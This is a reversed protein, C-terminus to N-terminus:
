PGAAVQLADDGRGVPDHDVALVVRDAAVGAPETPVTAAVEVDLPEVAAPGRGLVEPVLAGHRRSTSSAFRREAFLLLAHHDPRPVDAAVALRMLTELRSSAFPRPSHSSPFGADSVSRHRVIWSSCRDCGTGLGPYPPAPPPPSTQMPAGGPAACAQGGEVDPPHYLSRPAGRGVGRRGRRRGSWVVAAGQTPAPRDEGSGTNGALGTKKGTRLVGSFHPRPRGTVALGALVSRASPGPLQRRSGPRAPPRDSTVCM